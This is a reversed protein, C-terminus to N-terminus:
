FSLRPGVLITRDNNGVAAEANIGFTPTFKYQGSVGLARNAETHDLKQYAVFAAGEFNQALASRVGVRASAGDNDFTTEKNYALEAFLDTKDAIPVHYGFGLYWAKTDPFPADQNIKTWGAILNFNENIAGSGRLAYGDVNDFDDPNVHVYDAELYSYSLDAAHSAFPLAMLAALALASRKM